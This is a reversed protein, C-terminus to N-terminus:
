EAGTHHYGLAAEGHLVAHGGVLVATVKRYLVDLRLIYVDLTITIFVPFVPTLDQGVGPDLIVLALAPGTVTLVKSFPELLSAHDQQLSLCVCM